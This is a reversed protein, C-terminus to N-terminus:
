VVRNGAHSDLVRVSFREPATANFARHIKGNEIETVVFGAREFSAHADEIDDYMLDFQAEYPEDDELPRLVIHTGGRLELIAIADRKMVVRIGVAALRDAGGGVDAARLFIHGTAASPRRDEAKM